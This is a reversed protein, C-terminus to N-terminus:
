LKVLRSEGWDTVFTPGVVDIGVPPRGVPASVRPGEAEVVAARGDLCGISPAVYQRVPSQERPDKESPTPVKLFPATGDPMPVTRVRM